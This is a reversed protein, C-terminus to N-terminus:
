PQDLKNVCGIFLPLNTKTDIIAYVFPHDLKIELSPKKDEVSTAKDTIIATAAAAKTGNKDVEIHTKHLVTSFYYNGKNDKKFMNYLNAKDPDFADTVGMSKLVDTMEVDYDITYEPITIFVDQDTKMDSLAKTFDSPNENLKAIYEAPKVGEPMEIGVFAYKCGQYFKKFGKADNLTFYGPVEGTMMTVKTTTGDVNTFDRNKKIHNKTFCENWSGEFAVANLLCMVAEDDLRNILKPIMKHTNKKVWKNIDKVTSNDFPAKFVEADYYSVATKLFKKKVKVDKRDRIWISNAVNWKIKKDSEMTKMQKALVNNTDATKMGGYIVNEIQTRSSGKAGNEALGFAFMISAPSILVNENEKDGQITSNLLNLSASTLMEVDGSKMKKGKARKVKITSTLEKTKKSYKAANVSFSGFLMISVLLLCLLRKRKM